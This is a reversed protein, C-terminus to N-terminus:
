CQSDCEGVLFAILKRIRVVLEQPNFPKALYDDAGFLRVAPKHADYTVLVPVDPVDSREQMLALVGEARGWLLGADLVVLHPTRQRLQAICALGDAAKTVEFGLRSLHAQYYEALVPDADAFLIRVGEMSFDDLAPQPQSNVHAWVEEQHVTNGDPASIGLRAHNGKVSQVTVTVDLSPMVIAECENCTLVSM